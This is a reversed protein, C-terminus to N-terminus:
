LGAPDAPADVPPVYPPPPPPELVEVVVLNLKEAVKTFLYTDDEGWASYEAGALGVLGSLLVTGDENRLSWELSAELNPSVHATVFLRTAEKGGVFSVPEIIAYM